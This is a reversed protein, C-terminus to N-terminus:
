EEINYYTRVVDWPIVEGFVITDIRNYSDGVEKMDRLYKALVTFSTVANLELGHDGNDLVIYIM